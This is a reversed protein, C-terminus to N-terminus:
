ASGSDDGGVQNRRKALSKQHKKRADEFQDRQWRKVIWEGNRWVPARKILRLLYDRPIGKLEPIEEWRRRRHNFNVYITDKWETESRSGWRCTEKRLMCQTTRRCIYKFNPRRGMDKVFNLFDDRWRKSVKNGHLAIIRKWEKKENQLDNMKDAYKICRPVYNTASNRCQCSGHGGLLSKERRVMRRSCRLCQVLWRRAAGACRALIRNGCYIRSLDLDTELVPFTPDSFLPKRRRPM